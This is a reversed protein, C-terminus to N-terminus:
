GGGISCSAAPASGYSLGGGSSLRSAFTSIQKQVRPSQCAPCSVQTVAAASRVLEEFPTGCDNCVFEFIPM